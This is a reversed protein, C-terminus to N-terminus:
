DNKAGLFSVKGLWGCTSNACLHVIKTENNKCLHIIFVGDNTDDDDSPYVAVITWGALEENIVELENEEITNIM